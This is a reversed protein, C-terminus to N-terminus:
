VSLGGSVGRPSAGGAHAAADQRYAHWWRLAGASPDGPDQRMPDTEM